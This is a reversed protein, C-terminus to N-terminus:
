SQVNAYKMEHKRLLQRTYSSGGHYKHLTPLRPAQSVHAVRRRGNALYIHM